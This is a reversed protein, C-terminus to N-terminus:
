ASAFWAGESPPPTSAVPDLKDPDYHDFRLYLDRWVLKVTELGGNRHKAIIFEALGMDDTDPYYYEDRYLFAVIDADQEIQGSERIDSLIPRKDSRQEPARSLQSLAIVVCDLERAMLKLGRSMEGVAQVRNDSDAARMLQLYDVVIMDLKQRQHLRRAKARIEGISIESTDDFFLKSSGIKAAGDLIKQWRNAPVEGRRLMEGPVKARASIMRQMAESESMELNFIAVAAGEEVAAHEAINSVFASKGMAPRAAIIVLNGRQFGGTVKDLDPFGSPVGTMEIDGRSLAYLREVEAQAAEDASRFDRSATDSGAQMIAMEAQQVLEDADDKRERVSQIIEVAVSELRRLKGLQRVIRAYQRVNGAATVPGTLEDLTADGVDDFEGARVLADRLTLRDIPTGDDFLRRMQGFVRRHRLSYFDDPELGEEAVLAYMARESLLLAGLVGREADLDHPRPSEPWSM